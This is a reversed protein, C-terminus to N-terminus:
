LSLLTPSFWSLVNYTNAIATYPLAVQIDLVCVLPAIYIPAVYIAFLPITVDDCVWICQHCLFSPQLVYMHLRIHINLMLTFRSHMHSSCVADGCLMNLM